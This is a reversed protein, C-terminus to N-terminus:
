KKEKQQIKVLFIDWFVRSSDFRKYIKSAVIVEFILNCYRNQPIKRDLDSIFIFQFSINDTDNLLHFIEVKEIRYKRFIFKVQEEPFCFTEILDYIFSNSSLKAFILFKGSM